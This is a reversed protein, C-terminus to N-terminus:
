PEITIEGDVGVKMQCTKACIKGGQEYPKYKSGGIVHNIGSRITQTCWACYGQGGCKTPIEVGVRWAAQLVTEDPGIETSIDDSERGIFHVIGM